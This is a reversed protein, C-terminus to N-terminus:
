KSNKRVYVMLAKLLWVALVIGLVILAVNVIAFFFEGWVFTQM